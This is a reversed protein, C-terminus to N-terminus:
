VDRVCRYFSSLLFISGGLCSAASKFLVCCICSVLCYPMAADFTVFTLSLLTQWILFSRALLVIAVYAACQYCCVVLLSTFFCDFEVAPCHRSPFCPPNFGLLVSAWFRCRQFL